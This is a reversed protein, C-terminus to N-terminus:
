LSFHDGMVEAITRQAFEVMAPSTHLYYPLAILGVSLAWGQGRLWSADDVVLAERFAARSEKTFLTWAVLLECAPDGVGLGGFDIVARLRRNRALLNGSQLDGHLWVPARDWVPARLAMEWIATAANTDILGHLAELASRVAADREILPVGRGFNHAGALPGDKTDIQQLAKIFGALDWAAQTPDVLRALTANEGELWQCVSWPYPYGEGTIGMALPMPIALPLHPALHPLWTHEKEVQGVAWGIRPMRVALADGLRYIANDTGGSPIPRIELEAWQPFQATLLRRVLAPDTEFEDPHMKAM